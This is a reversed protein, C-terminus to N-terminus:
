WICHGVWIEVPFAQYVLEEKNLILAMHPHSPHHKNLRKTFTIKHQNM